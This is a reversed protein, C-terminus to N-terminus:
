GLRRTPQSRRGQETVAYIFSPDRAVLSRFSSADVAQINYNVITQMAEGSSAANMAGNPVISGAGKPIFLEPGREGVMIPVNSQVSGGNAMGFLSGIASFIGGGGSMDMLNVLMKKAQIRAFDAIISNAFDKFSWKGNTVLAVILDEFGKSFTDFYTKAQAASDRASEAYSKFAENWGASWTKSNELNKIQEASISAYKKAIKDLGDALEAANAASLDEPFTAAFARGAELAAKRANEQIDSIQKELPGMGRQSTQFKIDVKQDNISKLTDGLQQQRAIQDEIGKIVNQQDQVRAAEIM